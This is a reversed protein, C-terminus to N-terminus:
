SSVRVIWVPLPVGEPAGQLVRGKSWAHDEFEPLVYELDPVRRLIAAKTRVQQAEPRPDSGTGGPVGFDRFFEDISQGSPFRSTPRIDPLFHGRSVRLTTQAYLEGNRVLKVEIRRTGEPILGAAFDFSLWTLDSNDFSYVLHEPRHSSRTWEVPEAGVLDSSSWSGQVVFRHEGPALHKFHWDKWVSSGSNREYPRRRGSAISVFEQLEPHLWELSCTFEPVPSRPEAIQIEVTTPAQQIPQQEFEVLLDENPELHVQRSMPKFAPHSLKLEYDGEFLGRMQMLPSARTFRHSDVRTAPLVGHRQPRNQLPARGLARLELSAPYDGSPWPATALQISSKSAQILTPELPPGPRNLDEALISAHALWKRLPGELEFRLHGEHGAPSRSRSTLFLGGNDWPGALVLPYSRPLTDGPKGSAPALLVAEAHEGDHIDGPPFHVHLHAPLEIEIRRETREAFRLALDIAPVRSGLETVLAFEEPTLRLRGECDTQLASKFGPGAAWLSAHPIPAGTGRDWLRVQELRGLMPESNKPATRGESTSRTALDLLSAGAIAPAPDDLDLQGSAGNLPSPAEFPDEQAPNPIPRVLVLLAALGAGCLALLGALERIGLRGRKLQKAMPM